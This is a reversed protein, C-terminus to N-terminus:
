EIGGLERLEQATFGTILSVAAVDTGDLRALHQEVAQQTADRDPDTLYRRM